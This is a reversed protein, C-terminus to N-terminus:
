WSYRRMSRRSSLRTGVVAISSNICGSTVADVNRHNGDGWWRRMASRRILVATMRADIPASPRNAARM